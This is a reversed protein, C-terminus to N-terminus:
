PTTLPASPTEEFTGLDMCWMATKCLSIEVKYSGGESARRKLAELVGPAACLGFMGDNLLYGFAYKPNELSGELAAVRGCSAHLQTPDNKNATLYTTATFLRLGGSEWTM